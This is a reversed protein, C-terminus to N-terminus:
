KQQKEANTHFLNEDNYVYIEPKVSDLSYFGRIMGRVDPM